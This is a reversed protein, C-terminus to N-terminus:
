SKATFRIEIDAKGMKGTAPDHVYAGPLTHGTYLKATVEATGSCESPEGHTIGGIM